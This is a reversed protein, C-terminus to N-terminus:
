NLRVLLGLENGAKSRVVYADAVVCEFYKSLASLAKGSSEFEVHELEGDKKIEYFDCHARNFLDVFRM